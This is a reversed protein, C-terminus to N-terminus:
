LWRPPFWTDLSIFRITLPQLPLIHAASELPLAKLPHCPQALDRTDGLPSRLAVSPSSPPTKTRVKSWSGSCRVELGPSEGHAGGDRPMCALNPKPAPHRCGRRGGRSLAQQTCAPLLGTPSSEPDLCLRWLDRPLTQPARPLQTPVLKDSVKWCRSCKRPLQFM